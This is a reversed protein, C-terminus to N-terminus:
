GIFLSKKLRCVLNKKEIEVFGEPQFIYIVERDGQLFVTKVDMQEIEMDQQAAISLLLRISTHKVVPSFIEDYDVGEKQSYGKAVLRAKYRVADGEHTGKKKRFM